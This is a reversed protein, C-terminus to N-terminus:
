QITGTKVLPSTDGNMTVLIRTMHTTSLFFDGGAEQVRDRLGILGNGPAFQTDLGDDVIEIREPDIAVWCNNAHSHRIVNTIAERLVWSFLTANNGPVKAQDNSPLHATIFATNLAREAAELEGAFDPKKMRTVTARVEALATRSLEAIQQMEEVARDPQSSALASALEAKLNIVTLSHGLIDHVDRAIQEAQKSQALEADKARRVEGIRMLQAVILVFGAGIVFGYGGNDWVEPAFFYMVLYSIITIGSGVKIGVAPVTFAWLSVFYTSLFLIWPGLALFLGLTPLLLLGSWSLTRVLVSPAVVLKNAGFALIYISCFVIISATGGYTQVPTYGSDAWLYQLPYGLFILWIGANVAVAKDFTRLASTNM